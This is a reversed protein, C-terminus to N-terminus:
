QESVDQQLQLEVHRQFEEYGMSEETKNPDNLAGAAAQQERLAASQKRMKTVSEQLSAVRDKVRNFDRELKILATKVTSNKEVRKQTSLQQDVKAALQQIVDVQPCVLQACSSSSSSPSCTLIFFSM